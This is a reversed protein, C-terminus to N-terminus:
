YNRLVDQLRQKTICGCTSKDWKYIRVLTDNDEPPRKENYQEGGQCYWIHEHSQYCAERNAYFAGAAEVADEYQELRKGAKQLRKLDAQTQEVTKGEINKAEAMATTREAVLAEYQFPVSECAALSFLLMLILLIKKLM